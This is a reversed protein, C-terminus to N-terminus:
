FWTLRNGAGLNASENGPSGCVRVSKPCFVVLYSFHQHPLVSRMGEQRFASLASTESPLAWGQGEYWQQLVTSSLSCWHEVQWSATTGEIVDTHPVWWGRPAQTNCALLSPGSSGPFSLQGFYLNYIISSYLAKLLYPVGRSLHNRRVWCHRCVWSKGLIPVAPLTQFQFIHSLTGLVCLWPFSWAFKSPIKWQLSKSSLAITEGLVSVPDGCRM